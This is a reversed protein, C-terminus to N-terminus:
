LSRTTGETVSPREAMEGTKANGGSFSDADVLGSLDPEGLQRAHTRGVGELSQTVAEHQSEREHRSVERRKWFTHAVLALGFLYFLVGVLMNFQVFPSPEPTGLILSVLFFAASLAMVVLAKAVGKKIERTAEAAHREVRGGNALAEAVDALPFGCGNCFRVEESAQERSCRPCFM